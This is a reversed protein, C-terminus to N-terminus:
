QYCLEQKEGFDMGTKQFANGWGSATAAPKVGQTQDTSMPNSGTSKKAGCAVCSEKDETNQLLCDSCKWKSASDKFMDGWGTSSVASSLPASGASSSPKTAKPNKTDCAVCTAKDQDNQILCTPCSWKSAASKFIDGFGQQLKQSAPQDPKLKPNKTQCAACENKDSDNQILCTPCNWKSGASKFLDGFDQAPKAAVPKPVLKPNKTQCAVCETKVADNQILCTPCSWKEIKNKFLDGWGSSRDPESKTCKDADKKILNGSGSSEANLASNVSISKPVFETANPNLSSAFSKHADLPSGFSFKELTPSVTAKSPSLNSDAVTVPSSFDFSAPLPPPQPPSGFDIKPVGTMHLTINTPLQPAEIMEGDADNKSSYHGYGKDRKLKGGFASKHNGGKAEVTVSSSSLGSIEPKHFNSVLKVSSSKPMTALPPTNAVSIKSAPEKKRLYIAPNFAKALKDDDKPELGTQDLAKLILKAAKSTKAPVSPSNVTKQTNISRRGSAKDSRNYPSAHPLTFSKKSALGGFTTKGPYYSSNNLNKSNLISGNM